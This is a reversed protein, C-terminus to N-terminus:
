PVARRHHPSRWRDASAAVERGWPRLGIEPCRRGGDRQNFAHIKRGAAEDMQSPDFDDPLYGAVLFQPMDKGKLPKRGQPSGAACGQASSQEDERGNMRYDHRVPFISLLPSSNKSFQPCAPREGVGNTSFRLFRLFLRTLRRKHMSFPRFSM